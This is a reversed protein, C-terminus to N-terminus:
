VVGKKTSKRVMMDLLESGMRRVEDDFADIEMTSLLTRADDPPSSYHMLRRVIDRVTVQKTPTDEHETTPTDEFGSQADEFVSESDTDSDTDTEVSSKAGLDLRVYSPSSQTDGDTDSDSDSDSDIRRETDSPIASWARLFSSSWGNPTPM